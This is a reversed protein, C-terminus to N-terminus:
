NEKKVDKVDKVDPAVSAGKLSLEHGIKLQPSAPEELADLGGWTFVGFVFIAGSCALGVLGGVIRAALAAKDNKLFGPLGIFICLLAIALLGAPLTSLVEAKATGPTSARLMLGQVELAAVWKEIDVDVRRGDSARLKPTVFDVNYRKQATAPVDSM